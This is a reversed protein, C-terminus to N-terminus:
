KILVVNAYKHILMWHKESPITSLAGTLIFLYMETFM